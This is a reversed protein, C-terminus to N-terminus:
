ANQPMKPRHFCITVPEFGALDRPLRYEAYWFGMYDWWRELSLKREGGQAELWPKPFNPVPFCGDSFFSHTLPVLIKQQWTVPSFNKWRGITEPSRISGLGYSFASPHAAQDM